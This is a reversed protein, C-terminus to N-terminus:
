LEHNLSRGSKNMMNEWINEWLRVPRFGTEFGMFKAPRDAILVPGNESEVEVLRLQPHSEFDAMTNLNACATNAKKLKSLVVKYDLREFVKQILGILKNMQNLIWGPVQCEKGRNLWIFYTSQGKVVEDYHRAFDGTEREIKIVRAGADALRCSALPASAAQEVSVVLSDKLPQFKM